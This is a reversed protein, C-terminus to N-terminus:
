NLADPNHSLVVLPNTEKPALFGRTRKPPASIFKRASNSEKDSRVFDLIKSFAKQSRQAAFLNSDQGHTLHDTICNLLDGVNVRQMEPTSLPRKWLETLGGGRSIETNTQEIFQRSNYWSRASDPKRDEPIERWDSPHEWLKQVSKRDEKDTSFLNRIMNHGEAWTIQTNMEKNFMEGYKIVSKRFEELSARVHKIVKRYDANKSHKFTTEMSVENMVMGNLCAVRTGGTRSPVGATGDHAPSCEYYFGIVDGTKICETQVAPVDWRMVCRGGSVGTRKFPLLYSSYTPSVNGGAEESIIAIETNIAQYIDNYAIYKYKDSHVGVCGGDDQRYLGRMGSIPQETRPNQIVDEEVVLEHANGDMTEIEKRM